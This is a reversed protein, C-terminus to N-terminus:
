LTRSDGTYVRPRGRPLSLVRINISHPFQPLEGGKKELKYLKETEIILM